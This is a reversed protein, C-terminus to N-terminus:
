VREVDARRSRAAMSGPVVTQAMDGPLHPNDAVVARVEVRARPIGLAVLQEAVAAARRQALAQNLALSGVPDARGTVRLRQGPQLYPLLGRLADLDKEALRAAGQGFFVVTASPIDDAVPRPAATGGGTASAGVGAGARTKALGAALSVPASAMLGSEMRRPTVAPGLLTVPRVGALTSGPAVSATRQARQPVGSPAMAHAPATAHQAVPLGPGAQPHLAAHGSLAGGALTVGAGVTAAHRWRGRRFRVEETVVPFVEQAPMTLPRLGLFTHLTERKLPQRPRSCLYQAASQPTLHLTSPVRETIFYLKGDLADSGLLRNILLSADLDGRARAISMGTDDFILPLYGGERRISEIVVVLNGGPEPSDPERRSGALLVRYVNPEEALTLIANALSAARPMGLHRLANM